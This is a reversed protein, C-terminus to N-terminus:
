VPKHVGSWSLYLFFPVSQDHTALKRLAEEVFLSTSYIASANGVAGLCPGISSNTSNALDYATFDEASSGQPAPVGSKNHSFHEEAGGYHGLFSDFGRRTPTYADSTFGLHWKGLAWTAYGAHRRLLEPLFTYSLNVGCAIGPSPNLNLESQQGLHWAYRGTLFSSRSPSCFRYTYYQELSVGESRLKNLMPTVIQGSEDHWGVDNWGLDDVLSFVIHPVTLRDGSSGPDLSALPDPQLVM